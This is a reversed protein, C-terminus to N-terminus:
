SDYDAALFAAKRDRRIDLTTLDIAKTGSSNTESDAIQKALVGLHELDM